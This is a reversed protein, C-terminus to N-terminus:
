SSPDLVRYLRFDYCARFRCLLPVRVATRNYALVALAVAPRGINNAIYVANYFRFASRYVAGLLWFAPYCPMRLCAFLLAVRQPTQLFWLSIYLWPCIGCCAVAIDCVRYCGTKGFLYFSRLPM